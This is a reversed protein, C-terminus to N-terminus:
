GARQILEPEENRVDNVLFSVPYAEMAEPEYPRLLPLLKSSDQVTRDLWLAEDERHLIAPMRNHIPIMLDNPATTVIACSSIWGDEVNRDRRVAYLGAFAYLGGDKMHIYLPQKRREGPVAQWEYFGDAPILCRHERVADRFMPRELLTEARANIPPPQGPRPTLWGPAFGWRMWRLERGGSRQVITPVEQTPAVNFRPQIRTEAFGSEVSFRAPIESWDVITYRGCM